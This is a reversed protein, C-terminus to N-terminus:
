VAFYDIIREAFFTMREKKPRKQAESFANELCAVCVDIEKHSFLASPANKHMHLALKRYHVQRDEESLSDLAIYLAAISDLVHFATDLNNRM